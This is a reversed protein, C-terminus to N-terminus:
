FARNMLQPNVPAYCPHIIARAQNTTVVFGCSDTVQCRVWVQMLDPVAPPVFSLRQNTQGVITQWTAGNDKSWEWQYTYPAQGDVFQAVQFSIPEQWCVEQQQANLQAASFQPLVQVQVTSTFPNVM